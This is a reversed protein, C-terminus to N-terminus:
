WSGAECNLALRPANGSFSCTDIEDLGGDLVIRGGPGFTAAGSNTVRMAIMDGKPSGLDNEAGGSVYVNIDNRAANGVDLTVFGKDQAMGGDAWYRLKGTGTIGQWQLATLDPQSAGDLYFALLGNITIPGVTNNDTVVLNDFGNGGRVDFYAESGAAAGPDIDFGHLDFAGTWRDNGANLNASYYVRSRSDIRGSFFASVKDGASDYSFTDDGEVHVTLTSASLLGGGDNTVITNTVGKGARLGLDVISGTTNSPGLVTLTDAGLGM